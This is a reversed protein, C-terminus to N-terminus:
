SLGAVPVKLKHGEVAPYVQVTSNGQWQTMV